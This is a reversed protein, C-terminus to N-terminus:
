SPEEPPTGQEQCFRLYDEVSAALERDMDAGTEGQFTIVDRKLNRVCGHMLGGEKECTYEGIYGRYYVKVTLEHPQIM